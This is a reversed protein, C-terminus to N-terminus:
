GRNAKRSARQRKGLARRKRKTKESVTGPYINGGDRRSKDNLALLMRGKTAWRVRATQLEKEPVEDKLSM